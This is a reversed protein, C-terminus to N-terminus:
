KKENWVADELAMYDEPSMTSYDVDANPSEAARQLSQMAINNGYVPRSGTHTSIATSAPVAPMPEVDVSQEDEWRRGNLWSSPYPIYQGNDKRWDYSRIAVHVAKLITMFTEKDPAVKLFAHRAAVKNKKKPYIKWFEEFMDTLEKKRQETKTKKESSATQKKTGEGACDDTQAYIPNHIYGKIDTETTTKTNTESKQTPAIVKKLPLDGKKQPTPIEKKPPLDGEVCQSSSSECTSIKDVVDFTLKFLVKPVLEIFLVNNVLLTEIKISRFHRKVVGLKELAVIANMADRKSIGFQDSFSQYTRQLMDGKFRKKLGEVEGTAENRIITPKYWYVIDSLLIIANLNPKGNEKTITKYWQAPIVNGTANFKMMDDVIRVGSTKM